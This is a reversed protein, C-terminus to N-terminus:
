LRLRGGTVVVIADTTISPDARTFLSSLVFWALGAVWLLFMAAAFQALRIGLRRLRRM